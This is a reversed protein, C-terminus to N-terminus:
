GALRLRVLFETGEGPESRVELQGGLSRVYERAQYAGIGMSGSGKTSDFPRFLRERIFSQTMGEGTDEISVAVGGNETSVSVTVTGAEGTADQANRVLHEFVNTLRDPDADVFLGEPLTALSPSPPRAACHEAAKKLVDSLDVRRNSPPKSGRSLQDMLRRMRSVSNAITEIADDVFQPNDRFREANKVVLSQQAILNNLDHMLFATLRNYAGFQSSEALRKDTEAQNVHTGVHRGVTKLLDHDEFNLEPAARPRLLVIFGYLRRGLLLPVVLWWQGGETLWEGLELDEYRAPDRKLEQLDIVWQRKELFRVLRSDSRVPGVEAIPAQWSGSPEYDGNDQKQIWIIGGPSDVIQAVARVATSPVDELGSESLTGIFRLWEERYDYKYQFFTKMLVVRVRARLSASAMLIVAAAIAAVVLVVGAVASWRGGFAMVYYYGVMAVTVYVALVTLGFSYLVIRRPQRGEPVRRSRRAIGLILPAALLVNVFGRAALLDPGIAGGAVGASFMVLDFLFVGGVGICIYPISSPSAAPANRFLQETALLILFPLAYGGSIWVLADTPTEPRRLFFSIPLLILIVTAIGYGSRLAGAINLRGLVGLLALMAALWSIGRVWDAGMAPVTPGNVNLYTSLWLWAWIAQVGSALALWRSADVSRWRSLLLLTLLAFVGASLGYGFAGIQNAAM